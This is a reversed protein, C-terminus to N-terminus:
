NLTPTEWNIWKKLDTNYPAKTVNSLGTKGLLFRDVFNAVDNTMTSPFACHTGTPNEVFGIRDPVGLARYVETAAKLSVYGAEPGLRQISTNGLALLARPAVMAALQHQDYPLKVADSNKFQKLRSCYWGTGQAVELDECGSQTAMVRWSAEGGGGSEQPITLAVREDFAGVYLAMKGCYSCGSVAIRKVDIKNQDKTLFLGDILRSAGWAFAAYGGATNDPFLTYFTGSGRTVSFASPVLASTGFNMTACGRSTFINEPISLTGDMKMLVPYPATGSSPYTITSSITFTKSGVKVTVTLKGGSFTASVDSAAPPAPKTGLGWYQIQNSIEARRCAWQAKTSIRTGDEMKFPDPLTALSTLASFAPFTSTVKCAAGTNEVDYVLPVDGQVSENMVIAIGSKTYSEIAVKAQSFGSKTAILTDVAKIAAKKDMTFSASSAPGNESKLLKITNGLCVIRQTFIENGFSIRIINFGSHFEPLNLTHAGSHGGEIKITMYKKGNNAFIELKGSMKEFAEPIILKTGSIQFQPIRKNSKLLEKIGTPIDGTITFAGQADSTASLTPVKDLTVKVGSIGSGTSSKVTGSLSAQAALLQQAYVMLILVVIFFKNM